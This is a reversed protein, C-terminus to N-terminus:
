LEEVFENINLISGIGELSMMIDHKAMYHFGNQTAGDRPHLAVAEISVGLSFDSKMTNVIIMAQTLMIM